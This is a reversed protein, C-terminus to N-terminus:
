DSTWDSAVAESNIADASLSDQADSTIVEYASQALNGTDACSPEQIIVDAEKAKDKPAENSYDEKHMAESKPKTSAGTSPKNKSWLSSKLSFTDPLFPTRVEIVKYDISQFRLKLVKEFVDKLLIAVYDLTSQIDLNRVKVHIKYSAGKDSEYIVSKKFRLIYINKLYKRTLKDIVKKSIEIHGINDTGGIKVLKIIYSDNFALKLAIFASLALLCLMVIVIGRLYSNNFSDSLSPIFLVTAYMVAFLVAFFISLILAIRQLLLKSNKTM